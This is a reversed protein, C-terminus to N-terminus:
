HFFKDAQQQHLCGFVEVVLYLFMDMPFRNCYLGDKAQIAITTTVGHFFVAWSVLDVRIPNTIVVYALTHVGNISLM